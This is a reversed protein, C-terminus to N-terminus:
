SIVLGTWDRLSQAPWSGPRKMVDLVTGLRQIGIYGRDPDQVLTIRARKYELKPPIEFNGSPCVTIRM